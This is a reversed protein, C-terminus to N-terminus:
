NTIKYVLNGIFSARQSSPLQKYTAKMYKIEEEMPSTQKKSNRIKIEVQRSEESYKELEPYFIFTSVGAGDKFVMSTPIHNRNYSVTGEGEFGCSYIAGIGGKKFIKKKFSWIEGMSDDDLIEAYKYRVSNDKNLQQGLYLLRGERKM